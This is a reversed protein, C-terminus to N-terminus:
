RGGRGEAWAYGPVTLPEAVQIVEVRQKGLRRPDLARCSREFDAYPLFTRVQRPANLAERRSM